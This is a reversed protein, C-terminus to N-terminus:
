IMKPGNLQKLCTSDTFPNSPGILSTAQKVNKHVEYFKYFYFQLYVYIYFFTFENYIQFINLQLYKLM